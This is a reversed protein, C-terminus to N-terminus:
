FIPIVAFSCVPSQPWSSKGRGRIWVRGPYGGIHTMYVPLGECTWNLDEILQSRIEPGDINGFVGRTRKFQRLRELVEMAGVDGAHWVEDCESFYGFLSEDLFGHTDSILGIRMSEM